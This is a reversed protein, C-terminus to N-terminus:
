GTVYHLNTQIHQVFQDDDEFAASIRDLEFVERASLLESPTLRDLSQLREM